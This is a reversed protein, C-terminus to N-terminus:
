LNNHNLYYLMGDCLFVPFKEGYKQLYQTASDNSKYANAMIILGNKNITNNYYDILFVIYNKIENQVSISNLPFGQLKSLTFYYEDFKLPKDFNKLQYTMSENQQGMDWIKNTESKLPNNDIFIDKIIKDDITNTSNYSTRLEELKKLQNQIYQLRDNLLKEQRSFSENMDSASTNDASKQIELLSLGTGKLLNIEYLRILDAYSYCRHGNPSRGPSVLGIEDYYRLTRITLGTFTSVENIKFM